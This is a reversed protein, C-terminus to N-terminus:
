NLLDMISGGNYVESCGQAKLFAVAQGSRMGSRCYAVIPKSMGCIEQSRAPVEGLPINVAGELHGSAFEFPERVDIVTAGPQQLIQHISMALTKKSKIVCLYTDAVAATLLV